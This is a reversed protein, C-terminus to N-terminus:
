PGTTVARLFPLGPDPSYGGHLGTLVSGTPATIEPSWRADLECRGSEQRQVASPAPAGGAPGSTQPHFNNSLDCYPPPLLRHVM